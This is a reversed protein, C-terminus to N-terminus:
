DQYVDLMDSLTAVADAWRKPKSRRDVPRSPRVMMSPAPMAAKRRERYAAAREAPTM